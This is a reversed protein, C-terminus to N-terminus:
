INRRVNRRNIRVNKIRREIKWKEKIKEIIMAGIVYIVPILLIFYIIISLNWLANERAFYIEMESM